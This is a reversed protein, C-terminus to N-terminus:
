GSFQLGLTGAGDCSRARGPALCVMHFHNDLIVYAFVALSLNKQCYLISSLLIDFYPKCTFIPIWEVVTSTLFYVGEPDHIKYPSRM